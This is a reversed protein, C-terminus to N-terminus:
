CNFVPLGDVTVTDDDMDVADPSCSLLECTTEVIWDWRDARALLATAATSGDLRRLTVRKDPVYAAGRLLEPSRDRLASFPLVACLLDDATTGSKLQPQAGETSPRSFFREASPAGQKRLTEVAATVALQHQLSTASWDLAAIRDALAANTLVTM